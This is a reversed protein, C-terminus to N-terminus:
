SFLDGIVSGGSSSGSGSSPAVFEYPQVVVFGPGHFAYQFAEGSGGRLMSKVNMSSVVNPVLNASWAVAAQVDVYTPQQACDLVVPKGVTCLAATGTGSITTNFLGGAMMGAGKVRNIDWSMAADFALLNRGNVSIADGDLEVLYVYGGENAFFVEGQGSVRMLPMDESTLVKKLLKGVSGSKEHDFRVQGQFAVMAGKVALVDDGLSVRLMQTNQLGFRGAGQVELNSQEFLESRM